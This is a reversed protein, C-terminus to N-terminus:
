VGIFFTRCNIEHWESDPQRCALARFYELANNLVKSARDRRTQVVFCTVFLVDCVVYVKDAISDDGWKIDMLYEISPCVVHLYRLILLDYDNEERWRIRHTFDHVSTLRYRVMGTSDVTMQEEGSALLRRRIANNSMDPERPRKVGIHEAAPLVHSAPLLPPPEFRLLAAYMAQIIPAAARGQTQKPAGAERSAFLEMLTQFKVYTTDMEIVRIESLCRRQEALFADKANVLEIVRMNLQHAKAPDKEEDAEQAVGEAAADMALMQKFWDKSETNLRRIAKLANGQCKEAMVKFRRLDNTPLCRGWAAMVGASPLEAAFDIAATDYVFTNSAFM